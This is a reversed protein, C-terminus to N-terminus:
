FNDTPSPEPLAPDGADVIAVPDGDFPEATDDAPPIPDTPGEVVDVADEVVPLDDTPLLPDTPIEVVDVPDEIVPLDDAGDTEDVAEPEPDSVLTERDTGFYRMALEDLLSDQEEPSLSKNSTTSSGPRRKQSCRM